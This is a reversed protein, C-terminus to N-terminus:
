NVYLRRQLHKPILIAHFINIHFTLKEEHRLDDHM